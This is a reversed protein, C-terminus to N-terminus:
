CPSSTDYKMSEKIDFYLDTEEQVRKEFVLRNRESLEQVAKEGIRGYFSTGGYHHVYSGKAWASRFGFRQARWVFDWDEYYGDLYRKHDLGGIFKVVESSFMICFGFVDCELYDTMHERLKRDAVENVQRTTMKIRDPTISHDCQAGSSHSTTPGVIDFGLSAVSRMTSLWHPTVLTDSNLLCIWPATSKAIGENCSRGFGRPKEHRIICDFKQKKIWDATEKDSADDIIILSYDTTHQKISSICRKLYDLQNHVPIIIDVRKGATSAARRNFRRHNLKPDAIDYNSDGALRKALSEPIDVWEGDAPIKHLGHFQDIGSLNRIPIQKETRGDPKQSKMLKNVM